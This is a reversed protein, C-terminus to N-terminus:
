DRMGRPVRRRRSRVASWGITAGLVFAAAALWVAVRVRQPPPRDAGSAGSGGAAVAAVPAILRYGRKPITEIYRPAHADDDLRRRLEAVARTLVSDALYERGWVARLLEEKPVVKGAHAALETLVDMVKPELRLTIGERSLRNLSPEVTWEDLRYGSGPPALVPVAKAAKADNRSSSGV